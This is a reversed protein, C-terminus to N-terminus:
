EFVINLGRDGEDSVLNEPDGCVMVDRELGKGDRNTEMVDSQNVRHSLPKPSLTAILCAMLNTQIASRPCSRM